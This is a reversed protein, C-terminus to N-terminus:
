PVKNSKASGPRAAALNEAVIDVPQSRALSIPISCGAPVRPMFGVVYAAIRGRLALDRRAARKRVL